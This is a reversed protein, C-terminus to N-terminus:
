HVLVVVVMCHIRGKVCESDAAIVVYYYQVVNDVIDINRPLTFRGKCKLSIIARRCFKVNINRLFNCYVTFM